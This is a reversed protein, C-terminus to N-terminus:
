VCMIPMSISSPTTFLSKTSRVIVFFPFLLAYISRVTDIEFGSSSVLNVLLKKTFRFKADMIEDHASWLSPMACDTIIIYGGPSLVRWAEKLAMHEDLGKHYLVDFFTVATFTSNQFPLKNASGAKVTLGRSRAFSVARANKELGIVKGWKGLTLTTGGTGCGIDLITPSKLGLRSFARDIFAQKGIFWFHSQELRFMEPYTSSKM